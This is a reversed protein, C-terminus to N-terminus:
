DGRLLRRRAPMADRLRMRANALLRKVPNKHYYAVVGLPEVRGDARVRVAEITIETPHGFAPSLQM